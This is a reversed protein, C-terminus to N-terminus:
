VRHIKGIRLFVELGFCGCDYFEFCKKYFGDHCRRTLNKRNNDRHPLPLNKVAVYM